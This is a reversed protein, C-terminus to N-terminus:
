PRNRADKGGHKKVRAALTTVSRRNTGVLVAREVAQHVKLASVYENELNTGEEDAAEVFAAFAPDETASFSWPMGYDGLEIQILMIGLAWVDDKQSDYRVEGYVEAHMCSQSGGISHVLTERGFMVCTLQLPSLSIPTIAESSGFDIIRPPGKSNLPVNEPKLDLHALGRSHM